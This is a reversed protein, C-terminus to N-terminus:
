HRFINADAAVILASTPRKEDVYATNIIYNIIIIVPRM